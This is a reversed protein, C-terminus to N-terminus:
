CHVKWFSETATFFVLLPLFSLKQKKESCIYTSEISRQSFFGIEFVVILILYIAFKKLGKPSGFLVTSWRFARKIRYVNSCTEITSYIEVGIVIGAQTFQNLM